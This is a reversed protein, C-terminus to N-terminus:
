APLSGSLAAATFALESELLIQWVKICRYTSYEVDDDLEGTPGTQRM